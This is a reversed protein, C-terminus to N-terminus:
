RLLSSVRPSCARDSADGVATAGGVPERESSCGRDDKEEQSSLSAGRQDISGAILAAGREYLEGPLREMLVTYRGAAARGCNQSRLSPFHITKHSKQGPWYRPKTYLYIALRYLVKRHEATFSLTTNNAAEHM